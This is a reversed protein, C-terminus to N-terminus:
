NDIAFNPHLMLVPGRASPSPQDAPHDSPQDSEEAFDAAARQAIVCGEVSILYNLVTKALREEAAYDDESHMADERQALYWDVLDASRLAQSGPAQSGPSGPTASEAERLRLVLM